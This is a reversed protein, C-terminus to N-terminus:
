VIEQTGRRSSCYKKHKRIPVTTEFSRENVSKHSTEPPMFVYRKEKCHKADIGHFCGHTNAELYLVEYNAREHELYASTGCSLAFGQASMLSVDMLFSAQMVRAKWLRHMNQIPEISGDGYLLRYSVVSLIWLMWTKHSAMM